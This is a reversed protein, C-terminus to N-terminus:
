PVKIASKSRTQHFFLIYIIKQCHQNGPSCLAYLNGPRCIVMTEFKHDLLSDTSFFVADEDVVELPDDGVEEEVIGPPSSGEADSMSDFRLVILFIKFIHVDSYVLYVYRCSPLPDLIIFLDRRRSFAQSFKEATIM